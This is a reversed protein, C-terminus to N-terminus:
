FRETIYNEAKGNYKTYDFLLVEDFLGLAKLEMIHKLKRKIFTPMILVKYKKVCYLEAYEIVNILQYLSIIHFLVM